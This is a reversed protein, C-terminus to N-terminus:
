APVLISGSMKAIAEDEPGLGGQAAGIEGLLESVRQPQEGAEAYLRALTRAADVDVVEVPWGRALLNAAMGGGMNGVGVIAVPATM